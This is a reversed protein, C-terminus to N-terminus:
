KSTKVKPLVIPEDADDSHQYLVITKGITQVVEVEISEFAAALEDITVDSNQLITVKMLEHKHLYNLVQIISEENLGDKGIQMVPKIRNALGRLYSKQKGTLM